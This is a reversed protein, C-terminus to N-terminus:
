AHVRSRSEGIRLDPPDYHMKFAIRIARHISGPGIAPLESIAQAVARLFGDRDAPSLPKAATMIASLEDDTLSIPKSM